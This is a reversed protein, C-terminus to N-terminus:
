TSPVQLVKGLEPHWLPVVPLALSNITELDYHVKLRHSLIYMMVICQQLEMVATNYIKM